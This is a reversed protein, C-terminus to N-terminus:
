QAYDYKNTVAKTCFLMDAVSRPQSTISVRLSPSIIKSPLPM